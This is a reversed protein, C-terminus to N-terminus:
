ERGEILQISHILFSVVRYTEKATEMTTSTSALTEPTLTSIHYGSLLLLFTWAGCASAPAAVNKPFFQSEGFPFLTSLYSGCTCRVSLSIVLPCNFQGKPSPMMISPPRWAIMGKIYYKSKRTIILILMRMTLGQKLQMRRLRVSQDRRTLYWSFAMTSFFNM